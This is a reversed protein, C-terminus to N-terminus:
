KVTLTYTATADTQVPAVHLDYTGAQDATYSLDAAGNMSSTSAVPAPGSQSVDKARYLQLTIPGGDSIALHMSVQQGASLSLAYWDTRCPCLKLNTFNGASLTPVNYPYDNPELFDDTCGNCAPDCRDALGNCDDDVGNGCTEQAACQGSQGACTPMSPTPATPDQTVSLSVAASM